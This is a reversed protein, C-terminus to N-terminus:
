LYGISFNRSSTKLQTSIKNYAIKAASACNISLIVDEQKCLFLLVNPVHRSLFLVVFLLM